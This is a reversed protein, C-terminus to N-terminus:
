SAGFTVRVSSTNADECVPDNGSSTPQLRIEPTLTYVMCGMDDPTSPAGIGTSAILTQMQLFAAETGIAENYAACFSGDSAMLVYLDPNPSAIETLGMEADETVAWGNEAFPALTATPDGEGVLCAAIAARYAETSDASNLAGSMYRAVSWDQAAVPTALVTLALLAARIM